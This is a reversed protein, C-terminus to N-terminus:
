GILFLTTLMYVFSQLSGEALSYLIDICNFFIFLFLLIPPCNDLKCNSSDPHLIEPLSLLKKTEVRRDNLEEFVNNIFSPLLVAVWGDDKRPWNENKIRMGRM